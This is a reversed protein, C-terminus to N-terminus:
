KGELAAGIRALKEGARKGRAAHEQYRKNAATVAEAVTAEEMSWWMDLAERALEAPSAPVEDAALDGVTDHIYDLGTTIEDHKLGVAMLLGRAEDFFGELKTQRARREAVRAANAAREEQTIGNGTM